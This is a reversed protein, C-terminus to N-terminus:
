LRAHGPRQEVDDVDVGAGHDAPRLEPAEGVGRARPAPDPEAAPRRIARLGPQAGRLGPRDGGGQDIPGPVDDTGGEPIGRLASMAWGAIAAARGPHYGAPIMASSPHCISFPLHLIASPLVKFCGSNTM